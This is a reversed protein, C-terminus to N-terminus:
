KYEFKIVYTKIGPYLSDLYVIRGSETQIRLNPFTKLMKENGCYKYIMESVKSNGYIKQYQEEIKELNRVEINNMAISRIYFLYIAVVTFIADIMVFIISVTIINKMVKTGIKEKIYRLLRDIRPTLYTVLYIALLGWFISYYACIRGNIYFPKDYYDWWRINFIFEGVVSLVYEIISGLFFGGWFVTNSNKRFKSLTVIMIVAGIGYIGCFPGYLFSQRSELVGKTIMGFVTEVFFGIISYILFYSCIREITFGRIKKKKIKIRNEEKKKM